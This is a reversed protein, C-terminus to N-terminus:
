KGHYKKWYFLYSLLGPIGIWCVMAIWTVQEFDDLTLAAAVYLLAVPLSIIALLRHALIWTEEDRITWPLRLGIYRQFPLRPAVLGSFIMIVVIFGLAFLRESRESSFSLTGTQSLLAVLFAAALFFVNVILTSRLTHQRDDSVTSHTLLALNRYLIVIAAFICGVCLILSLLTNKVILMVLLSAFCFFLLLNRTREAEEALASQHMQKALEANVHELEEALSTARPDTEKIDLLTGVSVHLLAALQILQDADPVSLGKEWKSITQRVVHLQMALEEQSWGQQKRYKKINENLM